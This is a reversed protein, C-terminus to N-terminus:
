AASVQTWNTATGVQAPTTQNGTTPGLGTAGGNHNGWAWLTGDSQLALSHSGGASVATWNTATGVQAPTLQDGTATGLGTRGQLNSGWSWLTGDSRVALSHVTGGSFTTAEQLIGSGSLAGIGDSAVVPTENSTFADDALSFLVQVQTIVPDFVSQVAASNAAAM